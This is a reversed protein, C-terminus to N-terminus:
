AGAAEVTSITSDMKLSLFFTRGARDAEVAFVADRAEEYAHGYLKAFIANLFNVLDLQVIGFLRGQLLAGVGHLFEHSNKLVFCIM